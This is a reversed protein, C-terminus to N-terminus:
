PLFELDPAYGPQYEVTRVGEISSALRMVTAKHPDDLYPGQLLFRGNRFSAGIEYSYTESHTALSAEVQAAVYMEELRALSDETQQFEKEQLIRQLLSCVTSSSIKEMNICLDCLRPDQINKGYM